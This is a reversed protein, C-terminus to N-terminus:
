LFPIHFSSHGDVWNVWLNTTNPDQKIYKRLGKLFLSQFVTVVEGKSIIPFFAEKM